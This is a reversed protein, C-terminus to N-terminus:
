PVNVTRTTCRQFIPLFIRGSVCEASRETPDVCSGVDPLACVECTGVGSVCANFPDTPDQRFCGTPKRTVPDYYTLQVGSSCRIDFGRWDDFNRGGCVYWRYNKVGDTIMHDNDCNEAGAADCTWSGDAEHNCRGRELVDAPVNMWSPVIMRYHMTLEMHGPAVIPESWPGTVTNVAPLNTRQAPPTTATADVAPRTASAVPVSSTATPAGTPVPVSSTATPVAPRPDTPRPTPPETPMIGRCARQICLFTSVPGQGLCFRQVLELAAPDDLLRPCIAVPNAPDTPDGPNPQVCGYVAVLMLLALVIKIKM